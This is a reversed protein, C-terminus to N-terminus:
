DGTEERTPRADRAEGPGGGIHATSNQSVWPPDVSTVDRLTACMQDSLAVIARYHPTYPRLKSMM